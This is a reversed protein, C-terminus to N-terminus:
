EFNWPDLFEGYEPSPHSYLNWIERIEAESIDYNENVYLRFHEGESFDLGYDRKDIMESYIKKAKLTSIM